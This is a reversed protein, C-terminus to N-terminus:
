AAVGRRFRYYGFAQETEWPTHHTEEAQELLEFEAGLEVCVSAADHRCVELGSCKEPGHLAFAAIIVQGGPPMTRRLAEVYKRRDAADTLFHFVARDHWLAFSHPPVFETVDAVLWEVLAAKERLRTRSHELAAHSIDLVALRSYGAELLHDVLTSAGGGVDIIGADKSIGTREILGLSVEPRVQHWSVDDPAKTTYVTNWHETRNM